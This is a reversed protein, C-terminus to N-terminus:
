YCVKMLGKEKEVIMACFMLFTFFLACWINRRDSIGQLIKNMQYHVM